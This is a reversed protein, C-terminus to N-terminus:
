PTRALTNPAVNDGTLTGEGLAVGTADIPTAWKLIWPDSIGRFPILFLLVSVGGAPISGHLTWPDNVDEVVWDTRVIGSEDTMEGPGDASRVSIPSVVDEGLADEVDVISVISRVQYFLGPRIESRETPGAATSSARGVVVVGGAARVTAVLEALTNPAALVASAPSYVSPPSEKSGSTCGAAAILSLIVFDLKCTSNM